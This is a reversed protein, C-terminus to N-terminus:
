QQPLLAAVREAEARFEAAAQQDGRAEAVQGLAMYPQPLHGAFQQAARAHEEAKDLRGLESYALTTSLRLNLDEPLILIAREFFETGTEPDGNGCLLGGLQMLAQINNPNLDLVTQFQTTAEALDQDDIGMFGLTLYMEESAAGAKSAQLLITRAEDSKGFAILHQAWQVWADGNEPTAETAKRFWENAKDLNRLAAYYNALGNHAMTNDELVESAHELKSIFLEDEGQLLHLWASTMSLAWDERPIMGLPTGAEAKNVHELTESVQTAETTSLQRPNNLWNAIVDNLVVYGAEAAQRHYHVRASHVCFAVLLVSSGAYLKGTSTLASSAKLVIGQIQVKSKYFLRLGQVLWYTVLAALALAFLFPVSKYLGRFIFFNVVYLGGILVEELWSYSRWRNAKWWDRARKPKSTSLRSIPTAFLAPKGFGFYLADTPCVSVCDMCKLCEQDIVMGYDRVEQHVIVNSSCVQTCHGCGECAPTVRIRGPALKDAVGFLAGYPCMNVCFGKAGLFYVVGFGAFAFTLLSIPWSPFTAWFDDVVFATTVEEFEIGFWLRHLAPYLFMYIFAGMPVLLFARSRMAKPQIGVKNLMWLCLDQVAVLHCAWGCFWRGLVLTSLGSIIFFVLGASIVSDQSFTIAESPEVPGLTSGTLMWHAVHVAIAVHVLVLVGARWKSIKSPRATKPISKQSTATMPKKQLNPLKEAEAPV